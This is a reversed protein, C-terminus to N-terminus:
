YSVTATVTDGYSGPTNYEAAGIQGYVTFPQPSGGGTGAITDTGSTQGWNQTHAADRFLGYALLASSPGTMLRNAVTAGTGLGPGLSIVFPTSATCNITLTATVASVVGTYTGFALPTVSLVCTAQLTATVTFTTSVTAASASVPTEIAVWPLLARITFAIRAARAWQGRRAIM